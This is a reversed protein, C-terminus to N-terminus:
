PSGDARRRAQEQEAQKLDYGRGSLYNNMKGKYKGFWAHKEQSTGAGMAHERSEM